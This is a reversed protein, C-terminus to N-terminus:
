SQLKKFFFTSKSRLESQGPSVLASLDMRTLPLAASVAVTVSAAALQESPTM